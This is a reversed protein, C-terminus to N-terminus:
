KKANSYDKPKIRKIYSPNPRGLILPVREIVTDAYELGFWSAPNSSLNQLRVRAEVLWKEYGVLQTQPSIVDNVIVFSFDGVDRGPTTTYEQPQPEITGDAILDHVSRFLM